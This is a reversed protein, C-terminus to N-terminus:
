NDMAPLLYFADIISEESSTKRSLQYESGAAVSRKTRSRVASPYLVPDRQYPGLRIATMALSAFCDRRPIRVRISIAEDSRKECHCPCFHTRIIPIQYLTERIPRPSIAARSGFRISGGAQAAYAPLSPV